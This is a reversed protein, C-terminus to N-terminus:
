FSSIYKLSFFFHKWAQESGVEGKGMPFAPVCEDSLLDQVDHPRLARGM